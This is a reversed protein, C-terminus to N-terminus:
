RLADFLLPYVRSRERADLRQEGTFPTGNLVLDFRTNVYWGAFCQVPPVSDSGYQPTGQQWFGASSNQM